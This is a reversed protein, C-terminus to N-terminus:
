SSIGLAEKALKDAMDNYKDGSHGKVKIFTIDVVDKVSDFYKKYKITGSKNAKWQGLCWKSIGEYDHYITLKTIGHELAYKMAVASGMIEGAVNRMPAMEKDDSKRALHLEKGNHFLVVGYAYELTTHLYSGDVYAVAENEPLSIYDASGPEISNEGRIFADAEKIDSFGKYVAGKFGSIQSQCDDWSMYIGPTRGVKVAYYKKSM